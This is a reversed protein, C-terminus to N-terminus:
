IRVASIQWRAFDVFVYAMWTLFYPMVLSFIMDPGGLKYLNVNSRGSLNHFTRNRITVILSAVKKYPCSIVGNEDDLTAFSAERCIINKWQHAFETAFAGWNPIPIELSLDSFDNNETAYNKLFKQLIGLEGPLKDDSFIGSLFEHASRFDRQRSAYILPCAASMRELIRYLLLFAETNRSQAVLLLCLSLEERMDKYFGRNQGRMAAFITELDQPSPVEDFIYDLVESLNAASINHDPRIYNESLEYIDDSADEARVVLTASGSLMRLLRVVDPSQETLSMVFAPGGPQMNFKESISIM